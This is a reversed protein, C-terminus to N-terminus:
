PGVGQAPPVHPKQALDVASRALVLLRDPDPIMWFGVDGLDEGATTFTINGVSLLRQSFTRSVAITQVRTLPAEISVRSLIGWTARVRKSTIVYRRSLVVLANYAILIMAILALVTAWLFWDFPSGVLWPGILPGLLLLFLLVALVELPRLLVLLVSPRSDYLVKEDSPLNM